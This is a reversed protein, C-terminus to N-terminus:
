SRLRQVAEALIADIASDNDDSDDDSDSDDDDDSNDSDDDSSLHAEIGLRHFAEELDLAGDHTGDMGLFLDPFEQMAEILEPPYPPGAAVDEALRAVPREDGGYFAARIYMFYANHLSVDTGRGREALEGMDFPSLPHGEHFALRLHNFARRAHEDNPNEEDLRRRVTDRVCAGRSRVPRRSVLKKYIEGLLYHCNADRDDPTIAEILALVDHPTGPADGRHIMQAKLATAERYPHRFPVEHVSPVEDHGLVEDLLTIMEDLFLQRGTADAGEERDRWAKSALTMALDVRAVDLAHDAPALLVYSGVHGDGAAIAARLCRESEDLDICAEGLSSVMETLVSSAGGANAIAGLMAFAERTGHMDACVRYWKRAEAPNPECDQGTLAMCGRGTLLRANYCEEKFQRNVCVISELDRAGLAYIASKFHSTEPFLDEVFRVAPLNPDRRLRRLTAAPKARELAINAAVASQLLARRCELVKGTSPDIDIGADALAAIVAENIPETQTRTLDDTEGTPASDVTDLSDAPSRTM